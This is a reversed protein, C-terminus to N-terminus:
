RGAPPAAADTPTTARAAPCHREASAQVSAPIGAAGTIVSIKDDHACAPDTLIKAFLEQAGKADGGALTACGALSAALVATAASTVIFRPRM